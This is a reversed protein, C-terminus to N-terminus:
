SKFLKTITIFIVCFNDFNDFYIRIKREKMGQAKINHIHDINPTRMCIGREVGAHRKWSAM